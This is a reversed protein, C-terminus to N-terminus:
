HSICTKNRNRGIPLLKLSQELARDWCDWGHVGPLIEFTHPTRLRELTQALERSGPLLEDRDGCSLYIEPLATGALALQEAQWIPNRDSQPLKELDGFCREAFARNSLIFGSEYSSSQLQRIRLAPSYALVWGFTEPFRLGNYLAGYGGMSVGGLFTEERRGSLPFMRRTLEVLEQGVFRSWLDFHDPDDLYFSNEGSPMVVCLNREMAWRNIRTNTIWDLTNGYLGHLLYLTPYDPETGAMLKDVPLIITLSVNRMLSRAFVTAQLIAM